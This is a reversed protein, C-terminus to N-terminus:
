NKMRLQPNKYGAYRPKKDEPCKHCYFRDNKGDDNQDAKKSNIKFYFKMIKRFIFKVTVIRSLEGGVIRAPQVCGLTGIKLVHFM